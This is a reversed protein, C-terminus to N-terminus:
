RCRAYIKYGQNDIVHKFGCKRVIRTVSPREIMALIMTCWKYTDFIWACFDEIASKIHRLGKKDSAFHASIANGRMAYSAVVKGPGGWEVAM